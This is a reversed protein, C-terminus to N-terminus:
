RNGNSCGEPEDWYGVLNGEQIYGVYSRDALQFLWAFHLRQFCIRDGPTLQTKPGASLVTASVIHAHPARPYYFSAAEQTLYISGIREQPRDTRVFVLSRLPRIKFGIEAWTQQVKESM